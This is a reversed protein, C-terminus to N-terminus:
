TSLNKGKWTRKLVPFYVPCLNAFLTPCPYDEILPFGFGYCVNKLRQLKKWVDLSRDDGAVFYNELDVHLSDCCM